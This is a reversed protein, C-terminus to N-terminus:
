KVPQNWKRSGCGACAASPKASIYGCDPCMFKKGGTASIGDYGFFKAAEKNDAYVVTECIAFPLDILEPKNKHTWIACLINWCFARDHPEDDDGRLFKLYHRVASDIYCHLNIGKEWNREGYKQMGDEYQHSVELIMTPYDNWHHINFVQLATNLSMLNGSRIYREINLLVDDQYGNRPCCEAIVELPLLDCRGKGEGMDRVAGTSFERREGSDKLEAM